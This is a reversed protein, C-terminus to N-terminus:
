PFFRFGHRQIRSLLPIRSTSCMFSASDAVHFVHFFRFGHHQVCSLLPLRPTSCMFSASDTANFVHFFHFGHRQVCSLLPLRPTSCTFSAPDTVNFVNEACFVPSAHWGLPRAYACTRQHTLLPFTPGGVAWGVTLGRWIGAQNICIIGPTVM